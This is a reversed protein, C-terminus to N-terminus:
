FQQMLLVLQPVLQQQKTTAVDRVVVSQVLFKDKCHYDSPAEMPAQM